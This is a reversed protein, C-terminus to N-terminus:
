QLDKLAPRLKRYALRMRSKVTGLPLALRVSIERHSLGEFYALMVVRRLEQGLDDLATRVRARRHSDAVVEDPPMESSILTESLDNSLEQWAFERRMRDTRLNRAITYIWASVTGKEPHYLGAKRWVRLLTEQALDEANAPDAGQRKAYRQVRYGYNEFLQKFAAQNSETAISSLLEPMPTQWSADDPRHGPLLRLSLARM